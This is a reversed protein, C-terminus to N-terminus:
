AGRVIVDVLEDHPDGCGVRVEVVDGGAETTHNPGCARSLLFARRAACLPLLKASDPAVAVPHTQEDLAAGVTIQGKSSMKAAIDM